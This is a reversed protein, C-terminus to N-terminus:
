LGINFPFRYNRSTCDKWSRTQSVSLLVHDWRVEFDQVDDSQLTMSVLDALGQVTEYDGTARFYEYIMYANKKRTLIPRFKSSTARRCKSKKPLDVALQHAEELSVCDIMADLMDFDPFNHQGAISRSTVLEDISKAVEVEKIWLMTVPPEATRMCVETRFNDRWSQFEM